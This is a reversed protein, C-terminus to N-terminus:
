DIFISILINMHDGILSGTSSSTSSGTSSGSLLGIGRLLLAPIHASYPPAFIPQTTKFCPTFAGLFGTNKRIKSNNFWKKIKPLINLNGTSFFMNKLKELCFWASDNLFKTLSENQIRGHLISGFSQSQVHGSKGLGTWSSLYKSCVLPFIKEWFNYREM